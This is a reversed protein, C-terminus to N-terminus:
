KRQHVQINRASEICVLQMEGPKLRTFPCVLFDGFIENDQNLQKEITEPINRYEPLKFRQESVGLVRRSGVRWIRVAPSGNYVSLRGRVNFCKGALQPHNRCSRETGEPRFSGVTVVSGVLLLLVIASHESM